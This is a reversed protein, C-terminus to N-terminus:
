PEGRPVDPRDYGAIRVHRGDVTIRGEAFLRLAEPYLRHETELVRDALTDPTDDPLVPVPEQLVVPGSDYQENVLHVTAGSWRVGYEIVAEHVRQGYMGQGGFAPLLSPHINTMRGDYADVVRPPIKRMYGALAVFTVAHADLVDLLADGFAPATDYDSPPCVATALGHQEARELAPAADTNSVCLVPAADITGADIADLIAQMNTGSGSAFFALRLSADTSPGAM